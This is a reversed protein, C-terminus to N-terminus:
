EIEIQVNRARKTSMKVIKLIRNERSDAYVCPKPPTKSLVPVLVQLRRTQWEAV